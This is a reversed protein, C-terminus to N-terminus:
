VLYQADFKPNSCMGQQQEMLDLKTDENILLKRLKNAKESLKNKDTRSKAEQTELVLSSLKLRLDKISLRVTAITDISTDITYKNENKNNNNDTSNIVTTSSKKLNKPLAIVKKEQRQQQPKEKLQLQHQQQQEVLLKSETEIIDELLNIMHAHLGEIEVETSRILGDTNRIINIDRERFWAKEDKKFNKLSLSIAAWRTLCHIHFCHYCSTRLGYSEKDWSKSDTPSFLYGSGIHV